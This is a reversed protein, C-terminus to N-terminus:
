VGEMAAGYGDLLKARRRQAGDLTAQTSTVAANANELGAQASGLGRLAMSWGADAMDLGQQARIIAQADGAAEAAAVKAEAAAVKAEAAAVEEKPRKPHSAGGGERVELWDGDTIRSRKTSSEDEATEERVHKEAPQAAEM